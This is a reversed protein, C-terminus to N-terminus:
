SFMEDTAELKKASFIVNAAIEGPNVTVNVTGMLLM